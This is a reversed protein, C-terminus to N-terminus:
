EANEIVGMEKRLDDTISKEFYIAIVKNFQKIVDKTNGIQVANETYADIDLIFENKIIPAPFYNNFLGCHITIKTDDDQQLNFTHMSRRVFSSDVFDLHGSLATSIYQSWGSELKVPAINNIYRLGLRTVEEVNRFEGFFSTAILNIIVGNQSFKEYDIFVISLSSSMISLTHSGDVSQIQWLDTNDERTKVVSGNGEIVIGQQKIYSLEKYEDGLNNKFQKLSADTIDANPEFNYQCIVQTLYNKSYKQKPPEM